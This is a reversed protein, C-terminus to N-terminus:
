SRHRGLRLAIAELGLAIAELRSSQKWTGVQCIQTRDRASPVEREQLTIDQQAGLTLPM